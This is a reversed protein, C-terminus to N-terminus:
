GNLFRASLGQLQQQQQQQQQEHWQFSDSGSLGQLEQQQEQWKFKSDFELWQFSDRRCGIDDLWCMWSQMGTAAASATYIVLYQITLKAVYNVSTAASHVKFSDAIVPVDKTTDYSYADPLGRLHHCANPLSRDHGICKGYRSPGFPSPRFM